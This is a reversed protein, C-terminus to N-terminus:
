SGSEEWIFCIEGGQFPKGSDAKLTTKNIKMGNSGTIGHPVVQGKRHTRGRSAGLLGEGGGKALCVCNNIM